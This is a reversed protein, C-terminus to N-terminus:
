VSTRVGINLAAHDVATLLLPFVWTDVPPRFPYVPHPGDGRCSCEGAQSLHLLGPVPYWTSSGQPCAARHLFGAPSLISGAPDRKWSTGSTQNRPRSTHHHNGLSPPPPPLLPLRSSHKMPVSSGQKALHLTRSSSPSAAACMVFPGFVASRCVSLCLPHYVSQWSCKVM